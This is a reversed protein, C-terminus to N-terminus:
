TDFYKDLDEANKAIMLPFKTAIYVKERLNYKKLTAGLFEESGAYLYATDFYNIGKDIAELVLKEIKKDDFPKGLSLGFSASLSKSFRMCGFGLISLSNGSKPDIRYQMFKVDKRHTEYESGNTRIYATNDLYVTIPM